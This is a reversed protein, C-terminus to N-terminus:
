VPPTATFRHTRYGAGDNNFDLRLIGDGVAKSKGVKATITPTRYSGNYNANGNSNELRSEIGHFNAKKVVPDAGPVSNKLQLQFYAGDFLSSDDVQGYVPGDWSITAFTSLKPGSRKACTKVTVDWNDAWPGDYATDDISQASTTCKYGAASAPSATAM